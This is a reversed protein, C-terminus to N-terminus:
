LDLKPITQKMEQIASGIEEIDANPHNIQNQAQQVLYSLKKLDAQLELIKFLENNLNLKLEDM